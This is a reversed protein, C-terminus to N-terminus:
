HLLFLCVEIPSFVPFPYKGMMDRKEAFPVHFFREGSYEACPIRTPAPM